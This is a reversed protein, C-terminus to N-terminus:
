FTIQLGMEGTIGYLYGGNDLSRFSQYSGEIVNTFNNINAFVALYDTFSQKLSIDWRSFAKQYSDLNENSSIYGLYPGQFYVSVRGSFGEYDYGLALNGTYDTQGSLERESEYYVPSFKPPFDASKQLTFRPYKTKSWTRSYNASFVINSLAGPLFGLHTQLDLEIGWVKTGSTNVPINLLYQNFPGYQDVPLGYSRAQDANMIKINNLWYFINDINKKFGSITFLGYRTAYLAISADYNWAVASQLNPNGTVIQQDQNNIYLNPLRMSYDPRSISKSLAFRLDLWEFPKVKIHLNPLIYDKKYNATTDKIIGSQTEFEGLIRPIYKSTYDNNEYEYRFGAILTVMQGANLKVMGYTGQVNEEIKYKDRECILNTFYEHRIGDLSVGNKSFEYWQRVMNEDILPNLLYEDNIMRSDRGSLFDTLLGHYGSPWLSNAWDKPVVQGNDNKYYDFSTRLWYATMLQDSDRHREKSRYKYGAKVTGALDEGLRIPYELDAKIDYNREDNSDQYFYARDVNAKDFANIAYPILYQGPMKLVAPNDINKMGSSTTTNEYFRIWHDFPKENKTYAHSLAWNAKIGWLNNEGDISNNWTYIERDIAEGNYTVTGFAPYTRSTIFQNRTTKSYLNIFKITGGDPTNIDLNLNGGYRKRTEKDFEVQLSSIRYDEVNGPIEWSNSFLDRSRDRKEANFGAQIGLFDDFFRNSYDGSFRYQNATKTLGSYIGFANIGIKQGSKAKGTVLNVVGAIADADQDPTLAKFLEIGSLTSQSILSLDVDRNDSNSAPIQIGNLTVNAFKADLGRIVLKTAEGGDRQIAVGPLRGVSEAANADPLEKIKQESVINVIQDSSIQKNIAQAQGQLQGSVIIEQGQVYDAELEINITTKKNASIAVNLVKQKYGLYSIVLLHNGPEVNTIRFSGENDSITGVATGQFYVSAGQLAEGSGKEIIKGQIQGLGSQGMVSNASFAICLLFFLLHSKPSYKIKRWLNEFTM